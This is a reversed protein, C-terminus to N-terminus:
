PPRQLMFNATNLRMSLVCKAAQQCTNVCGQQPEQQKQQQLTTGHLGLTPTTCYTSPVCGTPVQQGLRAATSNSSSSSSRSSRSSSSNHQQQQRQLTTGHLGLTPTTCHTSPV